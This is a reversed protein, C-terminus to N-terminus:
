RLMVRGFSHGEDVARKFAENERYMSLKKHYVHTLGGAVRTYFSLYGNNDVLIDTKNAKMMKVIAKDEELSLPMTSKYDIELEDFPIINPLHGQRTKSKLVFKGFPTLKFRQKKTLTIDLRYTDQLAQLEKTTLVRTMAKITKTISRIRLSSM